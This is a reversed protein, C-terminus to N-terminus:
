VGVAGGEARPDSGGTFGDADVRILQAHGMLDSWAEVVSADRGRASRSSSRPVFRSELSLSRPSEEGWTRGYLWRRAEVAAQPSLGRDVIRTLLAAQTQPQGEGGMTGYVLRPQGQVLYMSPILTRSSRKRPALRNPHASDLSFFAGRNQLLAGSDGAIM